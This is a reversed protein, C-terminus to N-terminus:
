APPEIELDDDSDDVLNAERKSLVEGRGDEGEFQLVNVHDPVSVGSRIRKGPRPRLTIDGREKQLSALIDLKRQVDGETSERGVKVVPDFGLRKITEASYAIKTSDKGKKKMADKDGKLTKMVERAKRVAGAAANRNGDGGGDRGLLRHLMEDTKKEDRRRKAKEERGRGIKESVYEPGSASIVHGPIVYTSGEASSATDASPLLGWKKDPDFAPKRGHPTTTMGSTGMSFEARGARKRQVAHEVHYECCDSVRKDCWSGCIKGDRKTAGCMGLDRSHGIIAISQASTPTIALINNIPHPTTTNRQYPKLIKPNLIAIVAGEHLKMCAEFAGGSGGKFIKTRESKSAKPRNEDEVYSWSEAEFLLLTLLADGRIQAKPTASSTRTRTGFDVLKLSMYKKGGMKKDDRDDKQKGKGKRDTANSPTVDDDNHTTSSTSTLKIPGMEAIVAITVWDGPVPIDYGQNSPVPRIVSYILSPSLYYRGRLHDQLDSHPLKRTRVSTLSLHIGSNPELRAFHPDDVPPVHNQPGPTLTEVLALSEDREQCPPRATHETPAAAFNTSREITEAAKSQVRIAALNSLLKSPKLPSLDPPGTSRPQNPNLKPQLPPNSGGRQSHLNSVLEPDRKRKKPSPTGAAIVTPELKRKVPTAPPTVDKLQASLAAIQRRLEAQKERETKRADAIGTYSEM